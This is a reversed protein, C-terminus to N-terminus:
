MEEGLAYAGSEPGCVSAIAGSNVSGAPAPPAGNAPGSRHRITTPNRWSPSAASAPVGASQVAVM